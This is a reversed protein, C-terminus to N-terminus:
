WILIAGGGVMWFSSKMKDSVRLLVLRGAATRCRGALAAIYEPVAADMERCVSFDLALWVDQEKPLQETLGEETVKEPMRLVQFRDVWRKEQAGDM